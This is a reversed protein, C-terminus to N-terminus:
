VRMLACTGEDAQLLEARVWGERPEAGAVGELEDSDPITSVLWWDTRRSDLVRVPQDQILSVHQPHDAQIEVVATFPMPLSFM